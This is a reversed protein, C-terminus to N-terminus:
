VFGFIEAANGMEPGSTDNGVIFGKSNVIIGSRIWRSGFNNTGTDVHVGLVKKLHEVEETSAGSHVMCGSNNCAGLSGVLDLGYVTGTEVPVKLFESIKEKFRKLDKSIICGKDNALILNGIANHKTDLLLVNADDKLIAIEDDELNKSIIIGKSNGAVFIGALQTGLFTSEIVNVGLIDKMKSIHKAAIGKGLVCISDTAFSFLGIYPNGQFSLRAIRSDKQIM